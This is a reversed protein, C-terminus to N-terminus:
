SSKQKKVYKSCTVWLGYFILKEVASGEYKHVFLIIRLINECFLYRFGEIKAANIDFINEYISLITHM